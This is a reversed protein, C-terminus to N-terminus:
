REHIKNAEIGPEATSRKAWSLNEGHPDRIHEVEEEDEAESESCVPAPKRM